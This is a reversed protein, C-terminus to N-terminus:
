GLRADHSPRFSFPLRLLPQGVSLILTNAKVKARDDCIRDM